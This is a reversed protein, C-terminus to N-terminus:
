RAKMNKLLILCLGIIIRQINNNIFPHALSFLLNIISFLLVTSFVFFDFLSNALFSWNLFLTDIFLIVSFSFM